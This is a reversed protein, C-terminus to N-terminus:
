DLARELRERTPVLVNNLLDSGNFVDIIYSINLVEPLKTLKKNFDLLMETISMLEETSILTPILLSM